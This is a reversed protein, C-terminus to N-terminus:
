EAPEEVEEPWLAAVVVAKVTRREKRAREQLDAKQAPTLKVYLPATQTM